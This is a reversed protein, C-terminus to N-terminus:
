QYSYVGRIIVVISYPVTSYQVTSGIISGNPPKTSSYQITSYQVTSGIISFPNQKQLRHDWRFTRVNEEKVLPHESPRLANLNKKLCIISNVWHSLM